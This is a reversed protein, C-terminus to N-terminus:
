AARRQLLRPEDKIIGYEAVIKRLAEYVIPDLRGEAVENAIVEFAHDVSVEGRYSRNSTMADFVDAVSVIRVLFPIDEGKLHDPYGSGDLREHHSRVIPLCDKFLDVNEIMRAGIVPHKKVVDYEEATLRDPKLLIDDPIGIKGVDHILAGHSLTRREFESLGLEVAMRVSYQRVRESHGATYPDRAEVAKVMTKLVLQFSSEVQRIAAQLQQNKEDVQRHKQHIEDKAAMLATIDTCFVLVQSGGLDSNETVAGHISFHRTEGKDIVRIEGAMKGGEALLRDLARLFGDRDGEHIQNLVENPDRSEDNDWAGNTFVVGGDKYVFLGIPLNGLLAQYADRTADYESKVKGLWRDKLLVAGLLGITSLSLVVAVILRAAQSKNQLSIQAESDLLAGQNRTREIRVARLLLDGEEARVAEPAGTAKIYSDIQAAIWPDGNDDFFHQANQLRALWGAPRDPQLEKEITELYRLSATATHTDQLARSAQQFGFYGDIVIAAGSAVLGAFIWATVKGTSTIKFSEFNVAKIQFTLLAGVLVSVVVALVLAGILRTWISDVTMHFGINNAEVVMLATTAGDGGILPLIARRAKGAGLSHLTVAKNRSSTEAQEVFDTDTEQTWETKKLAGNSDAILGLAYGEDNRSITYIRDIDESSGVIRKLSDRLAELRAHNKVPDRVSDSLVEPDIQVAALRSTDLLRVDAAEKAAQFSQVYGIATAGAGVTSIALSLIFFRKWNFPKTVGM